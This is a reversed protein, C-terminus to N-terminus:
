DVSLVIKGFVDGAELLRHAEAAEALPLVRDIVPELVGEEALRLVQKLEVPTGLMSGIISLQRDYLYRIDFSAAAGSTAGCIALRGGRALSRLSKEFTAPGVSEMAVDVGRGGTIRRAADAVDQQSYVIVADAGLEILRAMKEETGATAIVTAGALKAIQVAATGLGGSAGVILATEGARLRARTILLHWATIFTVPLAAAAEWSLAGSIPVVNAAPVAVIQAYTGDTQRGVIGFHECVSQEGALCYPCAGDYLGPHIVVRQGPAVSTVGTGADLVEGAADAGPIHPLPVNAIVTRVWIDLHNVSCARVRVRVQNPGLDPDPAEGYQLVEPPGQQRFRVAKV